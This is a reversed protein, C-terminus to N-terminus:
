ASISLTDAPTLEGGQNDFGHRAEYFTAIQGVDIPKVHGFRVGPHVAIKFGARQCDVSFNIDEGGRIRGDEYRTFYFRNRGLKEFVRRRIAICGTGVIPVFYPRNEALAEPPPQINYCQNDADVNYQNVRLMAQPPGGAMWTHTLGSVVDANEVLCLQWFNAPVVQDADIMYLWECTTQDMFLNVIKNRAYEIGRVGAEVHLNFAIPFEPQYSAQVAAALAMGISYNINGDGTPVALLVPIKGSAPRQFAPTPAARLASRHRQKRHRRRPSPASM